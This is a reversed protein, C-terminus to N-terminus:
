TGWKKQLAQAQERVKTDLKQDMADELYKMAEAHRGLKNLVIACHLQIIGRDPAKDIAEQLYSWAVETKGLRYEVWGATDLFNADHPHKVLVKQILERARELDHEKKSYEALLYAMNNRILASDNFREALSEYTKLAAGYDGAYEYLMALNMGAAFSPSDNYLGEIRSIAKSIKKQRLYLSALGKYPESWNPALKIASEYEKEARDNDGKLNLIQGFLFHIPASKPRKKVEKRTLNLASELDNKRVYTEVLAPLAMEWGMKADYAKKFWEIAKDYEKQTLMLRGMEMPGLPNEPQLEVIHRFYREAKSYNKRFAEVEGATKLFIINKGNLALGKKLINLAQPYDKRMIFYRVLAIRLDVNSPHQKLANKLTDGAMSEKNNLLQCRALLMQAQVNLPQAIAVQNLHIEANDFSGQSLLIKGLLLHAEMMAQDKKLVEQCLKKASNLDGEVARLKARALLLREKDVRRLQRNAVSDLVKYAKATEGSFALVESLKLVADIDQPNKRIVEELVARAQKAKRHRLYFDAKAKEMEPLSPLKDYVHAAKDILGLQELLRAQLLKLKSDSPNARVMHELQRAAEEKKGAESLYQAMFLFPGPENPALNRWTEVASMMKKIQGTQKFCISLLMPIRKDKSDINSLVDIADAYRQEIILAKARLINIKPEFEQPKKIKNLEELAKAGQRASVLIAIKEIRASDLDPDLKVAKDFSFFAKRYKKQVLYGRGLLFFTSANKPDLQLANRYELVAHVADGEKMLENGKSIYGEVKEKKSTCGSIFLFILFVAIFLVKPYRNLVV